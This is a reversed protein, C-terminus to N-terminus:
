NELHTLTWAAATDEADAQDDTHYDAGAQHQGEQYFKVRYENWDTDRYVRASRDTGLVTTKLRLM